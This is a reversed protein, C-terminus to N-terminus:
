LKTVASLDQAANGTTRANMIDSYDLGDFQMGNHYNPLDQRHVEVEADAHM